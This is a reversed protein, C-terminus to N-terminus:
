QLFFSNSLPNPNKVEVITEPEIEPGMQVLVQTMVEAQNDNLDPLAKKVETKLEAEEAPNSLSFFNSNSFFAQAQWSNPPLFLEFIKNVQHSM